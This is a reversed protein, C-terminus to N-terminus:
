QAGGGSRLCRKLGRMQAACCDGDLFVMWFRDNRGFSTLTKEHGASRLFRSNSYSGGRYNGNNEDM